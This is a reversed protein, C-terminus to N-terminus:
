STGGVCGDVMDKRNAEVASFSFFVGRHLELIKRSTYHLDLFEFNAWLLTLARNGTLKVKNDRQTGRCSVTKNMM